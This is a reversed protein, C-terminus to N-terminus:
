FRFYLGGGWGFESHWRGVVSFQKGLIYEVGASSEWKRRTDYEGAGFLEVRDTLRIRRTLDIRLDGKTDVWTTSQFMLPLLYRVGFIGRKSVRDIAAGGFVSFFSSVYRDYTLQAEYDTPEVHQWGVQWAATLGHRNNQATVFGQTMHSLAQVEGWYFRPDHEAKDFHALFPNPPSGEYHVVRAMGVKAHYLIHCHFMWDKEENADFEIVQTAMPPLDVTHKLPSFEGQGNLVRFFHGHLHMPHHMMSENIMVFRVIEGRRITILDAETLTKGDLYWLYRIMDGQLRLTIERIPQHVPLTTPTLARLQAYPANPRAPDDMAGMSTGAEAPASPQPTAPMAMGPMDAMPASSAPKPAPSAASAPATKMEPMAEEDTPHLSM